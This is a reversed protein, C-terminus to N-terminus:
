TQSIELSYVIYIECYVECLSHINFPIAVPLKDTPKIVYKLTIWVFVLMKWM